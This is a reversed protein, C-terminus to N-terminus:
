NNPPQNFVFSKIMWQGDKNKEWHTLSRAIFVWEEGENSVWDAQFGGVEIALNGDFVLNHITHKYGRAPNSTFLADYFSAIEERGQNIKYNPPINVADEHYYSACANADGAIWAATFSDWTDRIAQSPDEQAKEQPPACATFFAMAVFFSILGTFNTRM